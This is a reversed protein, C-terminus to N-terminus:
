YINEPIIYYTGRNKGIKKMGSRKLIKSAAEESAIGVFERFERNTIQPGILVRYQQLALWVAEKDRCGCVLCVWSGHVYQMVPKLDCAVCLVGNRIRDRSVRRKVPLRCAIKELHARIEELNGCDVIYQKQLTELFLPLGSVHFIPFEFLSADLKVRLNTSVVVYRIPLSPCLSGVYHQLFLQHRYAQDFPNTLNTSNGDHSLRSFEHVDPKYMLTGSLHKVEIILLFRATVILADIQHSFGHDNKCQFDYFIRVDQQFLYDSLTYRLKDEGAQGAQVRYIEEQIREFEVDDVTLRTALSEIIFPYSMSLETRKFIIYSFCRLLVLGGFDSRGDIFM